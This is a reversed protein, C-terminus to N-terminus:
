PQALGPWPVRDWHDAPAAGLPRTGAKARLWQPRWHHRWLCHARGPGQPAVQPAVSTAGSTPDFDLSSNSISSSWNKKTFNWILSIWILPIDCCQSINSFSWTSDSIKGFLFLVDCRNVGRNITPYVWPTRRLCHDPRLHRGASYLSGKLCHWTDSQGM